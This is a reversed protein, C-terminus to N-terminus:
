FLISVHAIKFSSQVCSHNEKGGKSTDKMLDDSPDNHVPFAKPSPCSPREVIELQIKDVPAKGKKDEEWNNVLQRTKGKM